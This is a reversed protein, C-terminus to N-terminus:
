SKKPLLEALKQKQKGTEDHNAPSLWWAMANRMEPWEEEIISYWRVDRNRSNSVQMNRFLGEYQFGLREAANIASEHLSDCKWACRRYHLTDFIYCLLLYIAETSMSTRKMLPSWNIYGIELVGNAPDIRQLAVSGVAKHTAQCIVAYFMPDASSALSKLYHETQFLTKPRNIHFYTWDRDDDICYWAEFLDQSHKVDIPELHCYRGKLPTKKPLERPHWDTLKKGLKQGYENEEVM